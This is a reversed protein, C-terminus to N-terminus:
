QIFLIAEWLLVPLDCLAQPFAGPHNGLTPVTLFHVGLTHISVVCSRGRETRDGAVTAVFVLRCASESGNHVLRM